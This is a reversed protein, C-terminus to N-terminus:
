FGPVRIRPVTGSNPKNEPQMSACFAKPKSSASENAATQAPGNHLTRTIVLRTKVEAKGAITAPCDKSATFNHIFDRANQRATPVDLLM